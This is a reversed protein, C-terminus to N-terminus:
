HPRRKKKTPILPTIFPLPLRSLLPPMSHLRHLALEINSMQLHMYKQLMSRLSIADVTNPAAHPQSVISVVADLHTKFIQFPPAHYPDAPRVVCTAHIPAAHYPASPLLGPNFHLSLPLLSPLM